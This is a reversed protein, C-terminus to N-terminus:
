LAAVAARVAAVPVRGRLALARAPLPPAAAGAPLSSASNATMKRLPRTLRLGRRVALPRHDAPVTPRREAIM